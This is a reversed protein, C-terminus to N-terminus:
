RNNQLNQTFVAIFTMARQEATIEMGDYPSRFCSIYYEKPDTM